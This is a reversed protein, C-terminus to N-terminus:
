YLVISKIHLYKIALAVLLLHYACVRHWLYEMFVLSTIVSLIRFRLFNYNKLGTLCLYKESFACFPWEETANDHVMLM